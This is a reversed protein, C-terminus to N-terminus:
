HTGQHPSAPSPGFLDHEANVTGTVTFREEHQQEHTVATPRWRRLLAPGGWKVTEDGEDLRHRAM